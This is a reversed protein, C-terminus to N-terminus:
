ERGLMLAVDDDIGDMANGSEGGFLEDDMDKAHSIKRRKLRPDLTREVGNPPPPSASAARAVPLSLIGLPDNYPTANHEGGGNPYLAPPPEFSPAPENNNVPQEQILDVGTTTTTLAPFPVPKSPSHDPTFTEVDPPPPTLSEVPPTFSEVDPHQLDLTSAEMTPSGNFSNSPLSNERSAVAPSSEASLGRMIGDEVERKRAEISAKRTGFDQHTVEDETLKARNSELMKELGSVLARRAKISEAVAGEANALSKLLASLRAAHVPPTPVPMMPDTLKAYETNANTVSPRASAESRSLAIQLPILPGLEPPASSSSSSFLSGGLKSSKSSTSRAKDLDDVRAEIAEQVPMEFIARQRWVEIVRRIKQQVEHTAGKYAIATADAMLPSFATSFDDKKRAKSQQVVENALYILNLRKAAGSDKLRQLWIQATTGSHRRHFMVWQAVTVISEQTENLASLKARVSDETYAM